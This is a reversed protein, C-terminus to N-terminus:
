RQGSGTKTFLRTENSFLTAFVFPNEPRVAGICILAGLLHVRELPINWVAVLAGWGTLGGASAAITATPNATTSQQPESVLAVAVCLFAAELLLALGVAVVPELEGVSLVAAVAICSVAEVTMRNSTLSAAADVSGQAVDYKYIELSARKCGSNCGALAQAALVPWYSTSSGFGVCFLAFYVAADALACCILGVRRGVGDLRACLVPSVAIAAVGQVTLGAAFISSPPPEGFSREHLEAVLLLTAPGSLTAALDHLGSLALFALRGNGALAMASSARVAM